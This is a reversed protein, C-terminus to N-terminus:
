NKDALPLTVYFTTGVGEESEFHIDGGLQRAISKVIYLGLGSGSSAAKSTNSARYFREFLKPQENKPVGIGNDKFSLEVM